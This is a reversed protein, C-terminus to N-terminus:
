ALAAIERCGQRILNTVIEPLVSASVVQDVAGAKIAAAAMGFVASSARDQAVTRAGTEHMRALGSVGDRGAGTMLVGVARSGCSGAMSSFLLDASPRHDSVRPGGDLQVVLDNGSRVIEMHMGGPAVLILGPEVREADVAERVAMRCVKALREVLATGFYAPMHQAVVIAPFNAPFAPLVRMLTQPGGSGIGIGVVWGPEISEAVSESLRNAPNGPFARSKRVRVAAEIKEALMERFRPIGDVGTKRPKVAYDFAGKEIAELSLAASEKTLSTVMVVGTQYRHRLQDLLEIGGRQVLEVDITVADPALQEMRDMVEQCSSAFGIVEIRPHESLAGRLIARVFPSEDVILVRIRPNAV